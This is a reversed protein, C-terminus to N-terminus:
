LIYISGIDDDGTTKRREREREIARLERDRSSESPKAVRAGFAARALGRGVSPFFVFWAFLALASVLFNGLSRRVVVSSPSRRFSPMLFVGACLVCCWLYVYRTSALASRRASSSEM